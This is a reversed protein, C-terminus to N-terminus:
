DHRFGERQADIIEKLTRFDVPHLEDNGLAIDGGLTHCLFAPQGILARRSLGNYTSHGAKLSVACVQYPATLSLLCMCGRLVRICPSARSAKACISSEAPARANPLAYESDAADGARELAKASRVCAHGKM